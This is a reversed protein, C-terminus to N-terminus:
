QFTAIDVVFSIPHSEDSKAGYGGSRLAALL